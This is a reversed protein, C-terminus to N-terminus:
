AEASAEPIEKGKFDDGVKLEGTGQLSISCTALQGDDAQVSLQTIVVKGSVFTKAATDGEAEKAMKFSIPYRKVMTSLLDGFKSVDALSTADSYTLLADTSLTFSLKGVLFEKWDGSMKNSTDLTESTIELSCSKGFALPKDNFYLELRDGYITTESNVVPNQAM